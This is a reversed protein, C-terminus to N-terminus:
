STIRSSTSKRTASHQVSLQRFGLIGLGRCLRQTKRGNIEINRTKHSFLMLSAFVTAIMPAPGTPRAAAAWTSSRPRRASRAPLRRCHRGRRAAIPGRGATRARPICYRDPPPAAAPSSPISNARAAATGSRRQVPRASDRVAPSWSRARGCMWVDLRTVPMLRAPKSLNFLLPRSFAGNSIRYWFPWPGFTTCASATMSADPVQCEGLGAPALPRGAMPSRAPRPGSRRHCARRARCPVRASHRCSRRRAPRRVNPSRCASRGPAARRVFRRLGPRDPQQAAVIGGLSEAAAGVVLQDRAAFEAGGEGRQDVAPRILSSLSNRTECRM